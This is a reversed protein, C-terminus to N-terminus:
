SCVVHLENEDVVSGRRVAIGHIPKAIGMVTHPLVKAILVVAGGVGFEGFAPNEECFGARRTGHGRSQTPM